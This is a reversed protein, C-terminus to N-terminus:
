LLQPVRPIVLRVLPTWRRRLRAGSKAAAWEILILWQDIEHRYDRWASWASARM